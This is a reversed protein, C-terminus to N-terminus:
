LMSFKNYATIAHIDFNQEVKCEIRVWICRNAFNYCILYILEIKLPYSSPAFLRIEQGARGQWRGLRQLLRVIDLNDRGM